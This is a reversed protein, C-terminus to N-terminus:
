ATTPFRIELSGNIVTREIAGTLEAEFTGSQYVRAEIDATPVQGRMPFNLRFTPEIFSRPTISYRTLVNEVVNLIATIGTNNYPLKTGKQRVLLSMVAVNIDSELNDRGRIVDIYEGGATIGNRTIVTNTGLRESYAASRAELYGKQAANLPLGTSPDQAAAVGQLRLNAWTVSGALYPANYGVFACEPYETDADHHFFGKTRLFNNEKAVALPDTSVGESYATLSTTDASSFFYQKTRSEAVNSYALTDAATHSQATLFYWDEDQAEIAVVADAATEAATGIDRYGIKFLPVRPTNSLFGEAAKYAADSTAWDVAVEELSAYAKVRVGAGMPEVDSVDAIFLPTGFGKNTLGSTKLTIYVQSIPFYAM